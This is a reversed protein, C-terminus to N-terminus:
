YNVLWVIERVSSVKWKITLIYYKYFFGVRHVTWEFSDHHHHPDCPVPHHKHKFFCQVSRPMDELRIEIRNHGAVVIDGNQHRHGRHHHM